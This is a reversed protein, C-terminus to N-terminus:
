TRVGLLRVFNISCFFTNVYSFFEVGMPNTQSVSMAAMKNFQSLLIASAM